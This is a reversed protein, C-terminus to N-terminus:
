CAQFPHVGFLMTKAFFGDPFLLISASLTRNLVQMSGNTLLLPLLSSFAIINYGIRYYPFVTPLTKEVWNKVQTAALFSHVFFYAAWASALLYIEMSALQCNEEENVGIKKSIKRVHCNLFDGEFRNPLNAM